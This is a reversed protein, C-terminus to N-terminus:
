KVSIEELTKYPRFANGGFSDSVTPHEPDRQKAPYAISSLQRIREFATYHIEATCQPGYGSEQRDPHSVPMMQSNMPSTGVTIIKNEPDNSLVQGTFRTLDNIKTRSKVKTAYRYSSGDPRRGIRLVVSLKMWGIIEDGPILESVHKM